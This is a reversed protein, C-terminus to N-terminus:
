WIMLLIIHFIPDNVMRLHRCLLEQDLHILITTSVCFFVWTLFWRYRVGCLWKLIAGVILSIVTSVTSQLMKRWYFITFMLRAWIEKARCCVLSLVPLNGFIHRCLNALPFDQELKSPRNLELEGGFLRRRVWRLLRMLDFQNVFRQHFAPFRSNWSMDTRHKHSSKPVDQSVTRKKGGGIDFLHYHVIEVMMDWEKQCPMCSPFNQLCTERDTTLWDDGWCSGCKSEERCYTVKDMSTDLDIHGDCRKLCYNNFAKNYFPSLSGTETEMEWFM